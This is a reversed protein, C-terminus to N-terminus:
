QSEMEDQILDMIQQARNIGMNGVTSLEKASSLRIQNLSKFKEYIQNLRRPGIGPIKLLISNEISKQRKSRQFTVAFRHAEDRIRQLVLRAKTNELQIPISQGIQYIEERKKALSIIDVREQIELEVLAQYAFNLQSVGGDIVILNPLQEAEISRKLRRRVVEKMSLPDNSQGEVQTINFKMYASKDPKGDKFDVCSAVIGTGQLHSIDFCMMHKPYTKLKLKQQLDYLPNQTQIKEELPRLRLMAVYATQEAAEILAKKPGIKPSTVKTSTNLNLSTLIDVLETHVAENCSIDRAMWNEELANIVMKSIVGEKTTEKRKEFFGKQNMMVGDQITQIFGYCLDESEMYIWLQTDQDELDKIRRNRQIMEIKEIQDRTIAAREFDLSESAAMMQKKLTSIVGKDQGKILLILDNILTDYQPKIQKNVCPGLCKGIDLNICKRQQKDLTIPKTCDRIPFLDTLARQLLKSSGILAYPGFYLAGDKRKDRTIIVRPFEEQITIKIYPYSKDDKLAINYRPRHHKILKNELALAEQETPTVTIKIDAIQSVLVQTKIEKKDTAVFYSLVRNKLNKAKGVYIVEHTASMM